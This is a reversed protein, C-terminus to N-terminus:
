VLVLHEQGCNSLLEPLFARTQPNNGGSANAMLHRLEDEVGQPDDVTSAVEATLLEAYRRRMRHISMAVVAPSLNLSRGIEARPLSDQNSILFPEILRFLSERDARRYDEAVRERVRLLLTLVWQREFAQEPTRELNAELAFRSQLDSPQLSASPM